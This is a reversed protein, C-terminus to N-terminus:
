KHSSSYHEKLLDVGFDRNRDRWVAHPHNAGNQLNDYEVLFSPGQIRYYHPEGVATGGVWAFKTEKLDTKEIRQWEADAIEPRSKQVYERVLSELIKQQAPQLAPYAIGEPATMEARAPDNLIDKPVEKAIVAQERQAASLSGALERGLDEERSLVRLGARAGEKVQGPNAGFFAPTVAPGKGTCTFNLSLHHGEFRWGWPATSGPQGFISVFYNESDRVPKGAQGKELEALIAELSMVSVAKGYGRSSMGSSLLAHALLRQEHTMEKLPLGKRVRPIFHWNKREAESFEFTAKKQQDPSLAALLNKANDAMENEVPHACLPALTGCLLLSPLLLHKKM